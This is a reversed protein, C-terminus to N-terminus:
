IETVDPIMKKQKTTSSKVAGMIHHISTIPRFEYLPVTSVVERLPHSQWDDGKIRYSGISIYGIM